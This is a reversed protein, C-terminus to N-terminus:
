CRDPLSGSECPRNFCEVIPRDRSQCGRGDQRARRPLCSDTCPIWPYRATRNGVVATSATPAFPRRFVDGERRRAHILPRRPYPTPCQDTPRSDPSPVFISLQRLLCTTRDAARARAVTRGSRPSGARVPRGDAARDTRDTSARGIAPAPPRLTCPGPPDIPEPRPAPPMVRRSSPQRAPRFTRLSPRVRVARIPIAGPRIGPPRGRGAERDAGM